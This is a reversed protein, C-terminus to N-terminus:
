EGDGKLLKRGQKMLSRGLDIAQEGSMGVWHVSKGFEIIVKGKARGVAFRIEGEDQPVLKGEPFRGTAGLKEAVTQARAGREFFRKLAGELEPSVEGSHHM